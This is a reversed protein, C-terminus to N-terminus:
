CCTLHGCLPRKNPEDEDVTKPHNCFDDDFYECPKSCGPGTKGLECCNEKSMIDRLLVMDLEHVGSRECCQYYNRYGLIFAYSLWYSQFGM